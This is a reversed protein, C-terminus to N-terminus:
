VSYSSKVMVDTIILDAPHTQAYDLAARGDPVDVVAMGMRSLISKCYRRMDANDDALLIRSGRISLADMADAAFGMLSGTESPASSSAGSSPSTLQGEEPSSNWSAAEQVIAMGYAARVPIEGDNPLPSEELRDRPLHTNGMPIQM